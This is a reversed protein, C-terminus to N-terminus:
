SFTKLRLELISCLYENRCSWVRKGAVLMSSHGAICLRSPYRRRFANWLCSYCCINYCQHCFLLLSLWSKVSSLLKQHFKPPSSLSSSSSSSSKLSQHDWLLAGRRILANTAGWVLGIAIMKEIGGGGM